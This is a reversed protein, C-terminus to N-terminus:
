KEKFRPDGTAVCKAYVQTLEVMASRGPEITQGKLKAAMSDSMRKRAAECLEATDFASDIRWEIPPATRDVRFPVGAIPPVLLVWGVLAVAAAHRPNVENGQPASRRDLRMATGPEGSCM